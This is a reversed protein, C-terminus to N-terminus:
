PPACIVIGFYVVKSMEEKKGSFLLAVSNLNKPVKLEDYVPDIPGIVAM